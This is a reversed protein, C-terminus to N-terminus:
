VWKKRVLNQCFKRNGFTKWDLSFGGIFPPKATKINTLKLNQPTIGLIYEDM